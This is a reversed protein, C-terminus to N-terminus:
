KIYYTANICGVVDLLILISEEEKQGLGDYPKVWPGTQSSPGMM